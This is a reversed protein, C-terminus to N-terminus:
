YTKLKSKINTISHRPGQKIPEACSIYNIATYMPSDYSWDHSQTALLYMPLKDSICYTHRGVFPVCQFIICNFSNIPLNEKKYCIFM